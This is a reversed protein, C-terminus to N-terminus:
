FSRGMLTLCTRLTQASPPLPLENLTSKSMTPAPGSDEQTGDQPISVSEQRIRTSFSTGKRLDIDAVRRAPKETSANAGCISAYSASPSPTPPALVRAGELAARRGQEDREAKVAIARERDLILQEADLQAVSRPPPPPAEEVRRQMARVFLRNFQNREEVGGCRFELM